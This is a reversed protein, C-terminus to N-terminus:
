CGAPDCFGREIMEAEIVTAHAGAYLLADAAILARAGDRFKARRALM